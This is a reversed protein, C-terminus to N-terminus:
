KKLGLQKVRIWRRVLPIQFNWGTKTSTLIDRHELMRLARQRTKPIQDFGSKQLVTNLEKLNLSGSKANAIAGM